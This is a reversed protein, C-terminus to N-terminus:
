IKTTKLEYKNYEKKSLEDSIFNANIGHKKLLNQCKSAFNCAFITHIQFIVENFLILILM